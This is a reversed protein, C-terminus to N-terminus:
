KKERSVVTPCTCLLATQAALHAFPDGCAPDRARTVTKAAAGRMLQWFHFSARPPDTPAAVNHAATQSWAGKIECGKIL